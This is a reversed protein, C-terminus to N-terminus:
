TAGSVARLFPKVTEALEVPHDLYGFHTGPTSTIGVGIREALRGAAQAFYPLSQEGVLLQIPTALGALTPEDPLYTAFAGREVDLYTGAGARVRERLEPDLGEWNADGAVFRYFREIAERPGGSRMGEAVMAGVTRKVEEPDDFLPWFAPEHLIAGSVVWAHRLVLCVAIVGGLSTGFVVAPALGLRELLAAADDAQEEASTAAWGSPRPSRGNGRRDYTVVTFGEALLEALREFHGADGTAGMILLLPPGAGRVEHYLETGNVELVHDCYAIESRWGSASGPQDFWPESALWFAPCDYSKSSHDWFANLISGLTLVDNVGPARWLRRRATRPTWAASSSLWANRLGCSSRAHSITQLLEPRVRAL